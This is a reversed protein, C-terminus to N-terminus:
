FFNPYCSYLIAINVAIAAITVPQAAAAPAVAKHAAAIPHAAVATRAIPIELRIVFRIIPSAVLPPGDPPRTCNGGAVSLLNGTM